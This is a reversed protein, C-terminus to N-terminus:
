VFFSFSKYKIKLCPDQQKELVIGLSSSTETVGALHM